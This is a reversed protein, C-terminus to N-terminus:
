LAYSQRFAYLSYLLWFGPQFRILNRKYPNMENFTIIRAVDGVPQRNRIFAEFGMYISIPLTYIWFQNIFTKKISTKLNPDKTLLEDIKEKDTPVIFLMEVDDQFSNM